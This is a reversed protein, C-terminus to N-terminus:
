IKEVKLIMGDVKVVKVPTGPPYDEAAEAKWYEGHVYVMGKGNKMDKVEGREGVIGAEGTVVKRKQAKLAFYIAFLFFAVTVIVTPIIVSLSVRLYPVDSDILMLSGLLLSITGGIALLGHSVVKLELIFLIVALIMLALGAYNIPLTQMAFFAMILCIGGIVGPFIAGPNSFEFYLGMMGLTLLIYAINPNSIVNLIKNAFGIDKTNVKAGKTNLVVKGSVVEVTDGDIKELLEDIDKAVYNIVNMELAEYETISASERVAKEAWEINRGRKNALTKIKAVADNTVKEGMVSDIQGGIGVPHASGINTQPAMAAIHCAYTIYVGASGARSGPPAIYMVVPVNSALIERNIDWTSESLGGPTDLQIILAQAGDKEAAKIANGIVRITIPGIAGTITVVNVHPTEEASIATRLLFLGAYLIIIAKFYKM